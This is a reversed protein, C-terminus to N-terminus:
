SLVLLVLGVVLGGGIAGIVIGALYTPWTLRPDTLLRRM